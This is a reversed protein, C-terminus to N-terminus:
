AQNVVQANLPRSQSMAVIATQRAKAMGRGFQHPPCSTRPCGDGFMQCLGVKITAAGNHIASNKEATRKSSLGLRRHANSLPIKIASLKSAFGFKTIANRGM